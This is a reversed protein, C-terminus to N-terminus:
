HIMPFNPYQQPGAAMHTNNFTRRVVFANESRYSSTHGKPISLFKLLGPSSIIEFEVANTEPNAKFYHPFASVTRRKAKYAAKDADYRV